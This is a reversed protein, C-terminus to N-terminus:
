LLGICFLLKCGSSARRGNIGGEVLRRRVGSDAILIAATEPFAVPRSELSRCDLLLLHGACGHLSVFQDMIGSQVDLYDNEVTQGLQAMAVPDLSLGSIENWALLFAVELAASSSVGAGVALDSGIM